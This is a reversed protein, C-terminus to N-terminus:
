VGRAVGYEALEIAETDQEAPGLAVVCFRTAV